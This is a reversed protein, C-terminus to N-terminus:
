KLRSAIGCRLHLLRLARLRVAEQDSRLRGMVHRVDFTSWDKPNVEDQTFEDSVSPKTARLGPVSTESKDGTPKPDAATTTPPEDGEGLPNSAGPDTRVGHGPTTHTGPVSTEVATLDGQGSRSMLQRKMSGKLRTDALRCHGQKYTHEVSAPGLHQSCGPCDWDRPQVLPVACEHPVRTHRPYDAPWHGRCARCPLGDRPDIKQKEIGSGSSGGVRLPYYNRPKTSRYQILDLVGALIYKCMLCPWTKAYDCRPIGHKSVGQLPVHEFLRRHEENCVKGRFRRILLESSSWLQTDKQTSFGDPDNLGLM